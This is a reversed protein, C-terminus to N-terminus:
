THLEDYSVGVIWIDVLLQSCVLFCFIFSLLSQSLAAGVCKQACAFQWEHEWSCASQTHTHTRPIHLLPTRMKTRYVKCKPSDLFLCLFRSQTCFWIWQHNLLLAIKWADDDEDHDNDDDFPRQLTLTTYHLTTYLTHLTYKHTNLSGFKPKLEVSTGNWWKGDVYVIMFNNLLSIDARTRARTHRAGKRTITVKTIATRKESEEDM